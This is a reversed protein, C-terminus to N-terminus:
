YRFEGVLTKLEDAMRALEQAAQQTSGVGEATSQAAQAVGNVNEAIETTGRAAEQVNRGIESTTAAQEEVASAITAQIENIQTIIGSIEGISSVAMETEGQVAQIRSSIEETAKGTETALEKVENAVVAFGKGAEGARAAEITANLALLNTQEAISAILKVVNGIEASSEGLKTVNTNAVAAVEVAQGAVTAADAANKAIEQISASMEEVATAVTEVNRSVQEGAASVAGSQASTEEANSGMQTSVAMLEQSAAALTESNQAIHGLAGRLNEAATNFASAMRATEDSTHVELDRTLDKNALADLSEVSEGLPKSISKSIVFGLAIAIGAAVVLIVIAMTKASSDTSQASSYSTNSQTQVADHLKGLATQVDAYLPGVKYLANSQALLLNGSNAVPILYQDRAAKYIVWSKVFNATQADAAASLNLEKLGAVNDDVAKDFKAIDAETASRTAQDPTIALKLAGVRVMLTSETLDVVHNTAEQTTNHATKVEGFVKGLQQLGVLGLVLTLVTVVAFASLLKARVTKFKILGGLRLRKTTGDV